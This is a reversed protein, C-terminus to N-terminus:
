KGVGWHVGLNIMLGHTDRDGTFAVYDVTRRDATPLEQTEIEEGTRSMYLSRVSLDFRAGDLRYTAGMGLQAVPTAFAIEEGLAEYSVSHAAVGVGGMLYVQFRWDPFLYLMGSMTIPASVRVVEGTKGEHRGLEDSFMVDMGGELGLRRSLRWRLYSGVGGMPLTADTDLDTLTMQGVRPGLEFRGKDWTFRQEEPKNPTAQAATSFGALLLAPLILRFM